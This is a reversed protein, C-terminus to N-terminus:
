VLEIIVSMGMGGGMCLTVMGTEKNSKLLSDILSGVLMCGTAGLPHGLSIAGGNINVISHDVKLTEMCNLVVSSFAENIELLDLDSVNMGAKKLAKLSAPGPGALMLTPDSGQIAVTKIRAIPALGIKQGVAKNGILSLASGDAVACSNGAHHLPEIKSVGTYKKIAAKALNDYNPHYGFAPKLERLREMSMSDRIIEDKDLAITGDPNLVPIRSIFQGKAEAESARRQSEMAYKDLEARTYGNLTAILDASMGQSLLVHKETFISDAFMAGEDLGIKVRSMSEVGGALVLNNIGSNISFMAQCMADLGSACFRNVTYGPLHFGHGVDLTVAKAINGGQEGLQTVCGLILDDVLDLDLHHKNKLHNVLFSTLYLPSLHHLSGKGSGKGRVTRITDYIYANEM